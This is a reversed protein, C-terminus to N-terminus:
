SQVLGIVPHIRGSPTSISGDSRVVSCRSASFGEQRIIEVELQTLRRKGGIPPLPKSAPITQKKM